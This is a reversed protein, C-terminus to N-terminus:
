EKGLLHRAIIIRQIHSTGEYIQMGKADRWYREVPYENSYGRAGHMLIAADAARLAAETCFLKALSVAQAADEDSDILMAAQHVLLRGAALDAAADALSSQIMEFDGIRRGFQRRKRAFDLCADQCAQMIGVAGAAVGLRGNLLAANAIEVGGGLSGLVADEGVDVGSLEILAHDSARHGLAAGSMPTSKYRDQTTPVVFCTLGDATMTFILAVDAASGNTIWHKQGTLHWGGGEVREAATRVSRVDSGAEPETLAYCGIAEGSRLRDLWM